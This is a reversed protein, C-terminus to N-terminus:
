AVRFAADRGPPPESQIFSTPTWMPFEADRRRLRVLTRFTGDLLVRGRRNIGVIGPSCSLSSAQQDTLDNCTNRADTREDSKGKMWERLPLSGLTPVVRLALAEDESLVVVRYEGEPLESLNNPRLRGIARLLSNRQDPNTAIGTDYPEGARSTESLARPVGLREYDPGFRSSALESYAWRLIVEERTAMAPLYANM